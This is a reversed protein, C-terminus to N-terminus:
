STGNVNRTKSTSFSRIGEQLPRIVVWVNQNKSIQIQFRIIVRSRYRRQPLCHHRHCPALPLPPVRNQSKPRAIIPDLLSCLSLTTIILNHSPDLWVTPLLPAELREVTPIVKNSRDSCPCPDIPPILMPTSRSIDVYHQTTPM